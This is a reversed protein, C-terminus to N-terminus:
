SSSVMKADELLESFVKSIAEYENDDEVPVYTIETDSESVERFIYCLTEDSDDEAVLLYKIGRLTTQEVVYLENAENSDTDYFVIKELHNDDRSNDQGM